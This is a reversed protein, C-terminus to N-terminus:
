NTKILVGALDKIDSAIKDWNSSTFLAANTPAEQGNSRDWTFGKLKLNWSWTSQKSVVPNAIGIQTVTETRMDNNLTIEIAGPVLGLIYAVDPTADTFLSAIDSIVFPRGDTDQKVNVNGFNFLMTTNAANNIEYQRLSLSHAIWAVINDAADGMKYKGEILATLNLTDPTAGTHDYMNTASQGLLAALCAGVSTNLMDLMNQVALQQGFVSGAEEPNRLIYDYDTPRLKLLKTGRSIKVASTEHQSMEVTAIADTSVDYPDREIILGAVSKYSALTDFDGVMPGVKMLITGKSAANFLEAKQRLVETMADMAFKNYVLIETGLAM